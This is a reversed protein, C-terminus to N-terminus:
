QQTDMNNFVGLRTRTHKRKAGLAPAQSWKSWKTRQRWTKMSSDSEADGLLPMRSMPPM